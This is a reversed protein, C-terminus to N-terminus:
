PLPMSVQFRARSENGHRVRDDPPVLRGALEAARHLRPREAHAAAGPSPRADAGHSRLRERLAAVARAPEIEQGCARRRRISEALQELRVLLPVEALDRERAASPPVAAWVPAAHM